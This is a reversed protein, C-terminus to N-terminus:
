AASESSYTKRLEAKMVKGTATRPLESVFVIRDPLWWKAIRQSLFDRIAGEDIERDPYPVVLLLPREMWTPHPVAIVAAEKIDPHELAANEVDISSIWEGGSKVLDKARDVLKVAGHRDICAIDGTTFWGDADVAGAGEGRYYGSIVFPGRAQLQGINSEERPLPTGNDNVVRLELPFLSHGQRAKLSALEESRYSKTRSPMGGATGCPGTETMGWIHCVKVGHVNELRNILGEAPASGAIVVRGLTTSLGTADLHAAFSHWITPVGNAVTTGTNDFTELLSAPDLRTGPMVLASGSMAAAFPLGWSAHAHYLPVICCATSQASLAFLDDTRAAMAHLVLSRHSALVGKPNGTTGSTYCLSAGTREDFERWAFTDNGELLLDEYWIAKEICEPAPAADDLHVSFELHPSAKVIESALQAYDVDFFLARDQAHLAIYVAQDTFLRPNIPHCIAGIATVAYYIELHRLNNWGLTAVRDGEGIGRASLASALLRVRGEMGAWTSSQILGERDVSFLPTDGHNAAAHLLAGTLSLQRDQILGRM